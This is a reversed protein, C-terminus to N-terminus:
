SQPPVYYSSYYCLANTELSLRSKIIPVSINYIIRTVTYDYQVFPPSEYLIGLKPFIFGTQRNMM